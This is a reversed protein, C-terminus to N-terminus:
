LSDAADLPLAIEATVVGAVAATIQYPLGTDAFLDRVDRNEVFLEASFRHIGNRVAGAALLRVLGSALGVNRWQPDVVVAVEATEAGIDAEYRAIGVGRGDPDFAALALRRDYDLTVLREFEKDGHPPRGGLFRSRLTAADAEAVVRRLETADHPLVPRVSVNRGDLLTLDRSLWSPFGPPEAPPVPSSTVRGGRKTM